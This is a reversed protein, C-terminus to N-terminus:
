RLPEPSVPKITDLGAMLQDLPIPPASAGFPKSAERRRQEEDAIRRALEALDRDVNAKAAVGGDIRAAGALRADLDFNVLDMFPYGDERYIQLVKPKDCVVVLQYSALKGSARQAECEAFATDSRRAADREAASSFLLTGCGALLGALLLLTPKARRV